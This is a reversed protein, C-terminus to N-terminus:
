SLVFGSSGQFLTRISFISEYAQDTAARVASDQNVVSTHAAGESSNTGPHQSFAPQALWCCDEETARSSNRGQSAEFISQSTYNYALSFLGKRRGVQKQM